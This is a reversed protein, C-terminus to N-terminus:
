LAAVNRRWSNPTSAARRIRPCRETATESSYASNSWRLATSIMALTPYGVNVWLVALPHKAGGKPVFCGRMAPLFAIDKVSPCVRRLIAPLLDVGGDM